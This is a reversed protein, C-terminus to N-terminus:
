QQYDAHHTHQWCNRLNFGLSIVLRLQKHDGLRFHLKVVRAFVAIDLKIEIHFVNTRLCIFTFKDDQHLRINVMEIRFFVDLDLCSRHLSDPNFKIQLHNIIIRNISNERHIIKLILPIRKCCVLLERRQHKAQVRRRVTRIQNDGGLRRWHKIIIVIHPQLTRGDITIIVDRRRRAPSVRITVVWIADIIIVGDYVSIHIIIIASVVMDHVDVFPRRCRSHRMIM